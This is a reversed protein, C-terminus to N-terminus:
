GWGPGLPGASIQPTYTRTQGFSKGFGASSLDIYNLQPVGDAYQVPNKSYVPIAGYEIPSHSQRRGRPRVEDGM